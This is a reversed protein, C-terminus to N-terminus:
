FIMDLRLILFRLCVIDCVFMRPADHDSTSGEIRLSIDHVKDDKLSLSISIYKEINHRFRQWHEQRTAMM